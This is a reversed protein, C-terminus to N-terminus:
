SLAELRQSLSAVREELRQSQDSLWHLYSMGYIKENIAQPLTLPAESQLILYSLPNQEFRRKADNAYQQVLSRIRDHDQFDIGQCLAKMGEFIAASHRNLARWSFHARPQIHEPYRNRPHLSLYASFHAIHTQLFQLREAYNLGGSGLEPLLSLLLHLFPLDEWSLSPLPFSIDVSLMPQPSTIYSYLTGYGLPGENVLFHPSSSPAASLPTLPLLDLSQHKEKEQQLALAKQHNLIEKREKPSLAEQEAQLHAVEEENERKLQDGDPSFTFFLRHPNDLFYRQIFSSLFHPNECEKRLHRFSAKMNLAHEIPINAHFLPACRMFLTLGKPYPSSSIDLHEVELQHLSGEILDPLFGEKVVQRLTHFAQKAIEELAGKPCGECTIVYPVETMDSGITSSVQHCSPLALLAKRLPAADHGMLLTDLLQLTLIGEQDELPLTLFAMAQYSSQNKDRGPYTASATRPTLWRKQSPWNPSPHLSPSFRCLAKQEIFDLHPFLPMSGYFFFLSHSPHYYQQHFARLKEITVRPIEKPDGGSNHAYPLDPVLHALLSHWLREEPHSLAGKMENFVIGQHTLPSHEDESDAFALRHGEQMLSLPHLKPFFLADLYVELLNYFDSTIQSAAPYFTSVSSTMANMFTHLSRKLMGFFPDKLPFRESGCLLTHELIHPLGISDKPPTPFSISFLNEPDDTALHLVTARSKTHIWRSVEGDVAEIKEKHTLAYHGWRDGISYEAEKLM